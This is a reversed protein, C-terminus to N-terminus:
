HSIKNFRCVNLKMTSKMAISHNYCRCSARAKASSFPRSNISVEAFSANFTASINIAM